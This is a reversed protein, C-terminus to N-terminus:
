WSGAPACGGQGPTTCTRTTAGGVVSAVYVTGLTSGSTVSVTYSDKRGPVDCGAVAIPGAGGLTAEIAVLDGPTVGCYDGRDIRYAELATQATRVAAKAVTDLAKPRQGLFTPIAIAALIGVLMIVVLLEILTFGRQDRFRM